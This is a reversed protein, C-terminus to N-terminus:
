PNTDKEPAPTPAAALMAKYDCTAWIRNVEDDSLGSRDHDKPAANAWANVMERTPEVPVWKWGAPIAPAQLARLAMDCLTNCEIRAEDDMRNFNKRWDEIQERTLDSM